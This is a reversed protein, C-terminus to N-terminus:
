DWADITEQSVMFHTPHDIAEHQYAHRLEHAVTELLDYSNWSGVNEALVAENLTVTHTGHTYYGWTITGEEYTANPDWNISPRVDELGYVEIVLNMYEQLIQRREDVTANDWTAESFREDQLIFQLQDRMSQDAALEQERTTTDYEDPEQGTIWDWLRSLLGRKDTGDSSGESSEGNMIRAEYENYKDMIYRLAEGLSNLKAAQVIVTEQIAKITRDIFFAHVGDMIGSLKVSAISSELDRMRTAADSLEQATNFVPEASVRLDIM